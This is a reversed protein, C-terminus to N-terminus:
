KMVESDEERIEMLRGDVNRAKLQWKRVLISHFTFTFKYRHKLLYWAMLLYLSRLYLEM